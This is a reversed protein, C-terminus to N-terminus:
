VGEEGVESPLEIYVDRVADTQCYARSINIFDLKMGGEEEGPLHGIGAKVAYRVLMKKAELPPTAAFLNNGKDLKIQKAVLLSSYERHVEYGKNVDIWKVQIPKKDTASWCKDIPVKEYVGHAYFQKIEELRANRAGADDLKKHSVEDWFERNHDM